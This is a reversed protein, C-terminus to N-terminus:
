KVIAKKGKRVVVGKYSDRVQQGALNYLKNSNANADNSVTTIGTSIKQM